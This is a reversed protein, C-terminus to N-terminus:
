RGSRLRGVTERAMGLYSATDALSIRTWPFLACFHEYRESANLYLLSCKEDSKSKALSLMTYGTLHIEPYLLQLQLAQKSGIALFSSDELLEIYRDSHIKRFFSEAIFMLENEKWFANVQMNGSADYVYERALGSEIFWIEDALKGPSAMIQGKKFQLAYVHESLYADIGPKLRQVSRLFEILRDIKM